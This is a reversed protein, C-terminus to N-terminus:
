LSLIEEITATQSISSDPLQAEMQAEIEMQRLAMYPLFEKRKREIDTDPGFYEKLVLIWFREAEEPTCHYEKIFPSRHNYGYNILLDMMTFDFLYHGYCFSGLDIFYSKKGAVILNGFHLDGHACTAADPANDIFSLAKAKLADSRFRNRAILTKLRDKICPFASTDCPTSHLGKIMSAYEKALWEVNGPEEGVAKAFSKKGVIREFVIGERGEVDVPEGPKPTSIGLNYVKRSIELEDELEGSPIGPRLVKMMLKPDHKHFYSYGFTSEGSLEWDKLDISKM